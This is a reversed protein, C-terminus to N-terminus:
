AIAMEDETAIGKKVLIDRMKEHQKRLVLWEEEHRRVIHSFGDLTTMMSHQQQRIVKIDSKLDKVDAKLPEVELGVVGQISKLDAQTLSM